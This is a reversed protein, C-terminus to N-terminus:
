KGSRRWRAMMVDINGVCGRALEVQIEIDYMKTEPLRDLDRYYDNILTRIAALFDEPKKARFNRPLHTDCVKVAESDDVDNKKQAM